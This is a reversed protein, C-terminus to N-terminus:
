QICINYRLFFNSYPLLLCPLPWTFLNQLLLINQDNRLFTYKLSSYKHGWKASSIVRIGFQIYQYTPSAKSTTTYNGSLHPAPHPPFHLVPKPIGMQEGSPTGLLMAPSKADSQCVSPLSVRCINPPPFALTLSRLGVCLIGTSLRCGRRGLKGKLLSKKHLGDQITHTM